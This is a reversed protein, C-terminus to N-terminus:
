KETSTLEAAVKSWLAVFQKREGPELRNLEGPDRVCDLDPDNQWSMLTRRLGARAATPDAELARVRAALDALLWERARDRWRGSSADWLATADEGRGCGALAAARAANFRHGSRLDEALTADAEFADNYLQAITRNRNKFRCAGLFALRETNDRPVHKGELFAATDPFILAEAERRLVHWLWQDHSRVQAMSWDVVSIERALSKRANREDGLRHKAMAMVLRPCPGLVKTAIPSLISIAREFRGRRYEALGLAFLFFPYDKEPTTAKAAVAREALAIATSLEESSPPALLVARATQEAVYPDNTGGFRRLLDRRALRYEAEDGLFLCLEAYGFWSEHGPPDLELAKKWEQRVEEGRGLRVFASRLVNEVYPLRPYAEHFRRYHEMADDYRGAASLADGYDLHAWAYNPDISLAKSYCAIAEDIQGTDKLSNGLNAHGRAYNPDIRLAQRYYSIAEQFRKQIRLSDGLATYAVAAEPRSALAARYYGSAEVPAAFCLSDGLGINAWFDAPHDSQVRKLFAAAEDGVPRLREGLALVLSISQGGVPVQRALQILASLDDWREPDRIRDAWGLPDPDARRAITLLWTRRGKDSVCVVWDDIAAILAVRVASAGVRAAVLEPPDGGRALGSNEFAVMYERDAKSKYYALDGASTARNLHIRDLEVVLDLNSRARALRRRLDDAGGGNFRAEARQLAVGADIWGAKKLLDNMERLDAEIATRRNARDVVLWMAGAILVTTFLVCTAVLAAVTPRRKIWKGVYGLFNSRRASIPEGRRFHLLDDAFAAASAYRRGPVKDLCKLCITELDRPVKANLRSPPAPDQDIVQRVTEAATESRFPPRGTLLEYLIAGLAYIDVAPGVAQTDGRAQEPAMYSPTGLVLGSRTLGAGGDLRRALGFDSLKPTGDAALLVNSPKLDRHVIGGQHAFQVAGALTALLEAAQRSPQPIGALHRALSGGELLEMTFYPRGSSEGVDYIQVVNPHQLGAVAEAERQFRGREDRGAYVGSLMVKLAVLRNLRPQRARFVAGMGGQGLLAQVEYGPFEPLDGAPHPPFEHAEDQSSDTEPFLAGIQARVARLKRWEERVQPLFEPSVRCVEEASRGSELIEELLLQVREDDPM